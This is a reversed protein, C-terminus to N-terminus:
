QEDKIADFRKLVENDMDHVEDVIVLDVTEGILDPNPNAIADELARLRQRENEIADELARLRRRENDIAIGRQLKEWHNRGAPTDYWNTRGFRSRM